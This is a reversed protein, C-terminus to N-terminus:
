VPSSPRRQVRAVPDVSQVQPRVDNSHGDNDVMHGDNDHNTASMATATM